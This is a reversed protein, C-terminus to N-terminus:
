RTMTWAARYIWPRSWALAEPSRDAGGLASGTWDATWRAASPATARTPLGGRGEGGRGEWSSGPELTVVNVLGSLAEGYRASFGNTILSAEGLFDPPIRLGLGGSSADLQNKVGLGDLV